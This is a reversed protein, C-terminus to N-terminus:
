TVGRVFALAATHLAAKGDLTWALNNTAVRELLEAVVV